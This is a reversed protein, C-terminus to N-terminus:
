YIWKQWSYTILLLNISTLYIDLHVTVLLQPVQLVAKYCGEYNREVPIEMSMHNYKWNELTSNFPLYEMNHIIPHNYSPDAFM